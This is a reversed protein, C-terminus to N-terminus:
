TCKMLTMPHSVESLPSKQLCVCYSVLYERKGGIFSSSSMEDRNGPITSTAYCRHLHELTAAMADIKILRPDVRGGSLCLM